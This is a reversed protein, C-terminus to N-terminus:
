SIYCFGRFLLPSIFMLTNKSLPSTMEVEFLANIANKLSPVSSSLFFEFVEDFPIKIKDGHVINKVACKIIEIKEHHKTQLQIKNLKILFGVIEDMFLRGDILSIIEDLEPPDESDAM